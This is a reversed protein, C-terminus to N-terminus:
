HHHHKDEPPLDNYKGCKPCLVATFPHEHMVEYHGVNSLLKSKCGGCRYTTDGQGTIAYTGAEPKLVGDDSAPKPVIRMDKQPM